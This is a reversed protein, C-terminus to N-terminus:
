CISFVYTTSYDVAGNQYVKVEAVALVPILVAALCEPLRLRLRTPKRGSEIRILVAGFVTAFPFPFTPANATRRITM